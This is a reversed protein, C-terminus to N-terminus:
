EGFHEPEELPAPRAAASKPEPATPLVAAEHVFSHSCVACYDDGDRRM